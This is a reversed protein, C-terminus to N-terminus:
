FQGQLFPDPPAKEPSWFDEIEAADREAAIWDSLAQRQSQSYDAPSLEREERELVEIVHWGFNSEVPDSLEGVPLSFVVEDVVAVFRGQPVFGLDGGSIASATDASLESALDAFDDGQELREVVENAEEETEVLIHRARAQEATTPVEEGLVEGLKGRLVALRMYDRYDAEDTNAFDALTTLWNSYQTALVDDAIVNLTPTPAPSPPSIPTAVSETIQATNTLTPSPTLTPTPTWVAATATAEERATVTEAASAVTVGGERSALFSNIFEAVEEESVTIGRQEAEDVMLQEIIMIDLAQRDVGSRQQSLQSFLQQYQNRLLQSFQDEDDAPPLAAFQQSIQQLQDELIFREYYVRNQYDGVTIEEDNVIAIASNPEFVYTQLLGYGLVLVILLGVFGLALYFLRRQEKEKRSIAIQKRTPARSSQSEKKAM